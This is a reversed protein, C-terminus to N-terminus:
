GETYLSDTYLSGWASETARRQTDGQGVASVRTRRDVALCTWGGGDEDSLHILLTHRDHEVRVRHVGNGDEHLGRVKRGARPEDAVFSTWRGRSGSPKPLPATPM